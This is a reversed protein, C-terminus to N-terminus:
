LRPECPRETLKGPLDLLIRLGRLEGFHRSRKMSRDDLLDDTSRKAFCGKRRTHLLGVLVRAGHSAELDDVASATGLYLSRVDSRDSVITRIRDAIAKCQRARDM